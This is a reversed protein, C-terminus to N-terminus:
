GASRRFECHPALTKAREYVSLGESDALLRELFARAESYFGRVMWFETLAGGLRYAMDLIPKGQASALVWEMTARLNDHEEELRELWDVHQSSTYERAAEEALALYYAAHAQRAAALEGSATLVELGFERITELMMFRPEVGEQAMQQLLNKDVLSAVRDLVSPIADGLEACVAEVAELTCGGVFVSIRRFLQQESDDLLHFSWAITDRLTQQREPADRAGGTLVAFRHELRTLLAQPPLLKSRAAALEIALPLGDLRICIQAISTANADNLRFGPKVARARQLFLEVAEYQSLAALGGQHKLDPVALPPVDYEQEGRVHLAARSTVLVKLQPCATLVDAVQVAAALVQEFNDLLLLLSKDRLYAKLLDLLIKGSIERIGLSEAIAPVVLDPDTIPALSVFFV